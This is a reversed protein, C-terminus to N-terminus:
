NPIYELPDTYSGDKKMEFHLHPVDFLEILATEGVGGIVEGGKITTGVTINKPIAEQLNMYISQINDPHDIVVTKGMLPDDYIESIVGDSVAKVKVGIESDIDIGLHTRYDNMAISYEPTDPNHKRSVYGSVPKLYIQPVSIVEIVSEEPEIIIDATRDTATAPQNDPAANPEMEQIPPIVTNGTAPQVPIAAPETPKPQATPRQTMPPQTPPQTTSETTSKKFFDFIADESDYDNEGNDLLVNNQNDQGNQNEHQNQNQNQNFMSYISLFMISLICLVLVIYLVKTINSSRAKFNM